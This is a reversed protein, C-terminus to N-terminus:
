KYKDMIRKAESLPDDLDDGKRSSSPKSSNSSGGGSGGEGSQTLFYYGLGGIVLMTVVGSLVQLWRAAAPSPWM